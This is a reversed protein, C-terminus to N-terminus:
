KRVRGTGRVMGAGRVMGTRAGSLVSRGGRLEDELTGPSNMARGEGTNM